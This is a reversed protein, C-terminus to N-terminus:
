PRQDGRSSAHASRAQRLAPRLFAAVGCPATLAVIAARVRGWSVKRVRPLARRSAPAARPSRYGWSSPVRLDSTVFFRRCRLLFEVLSSRGAAGLPWSTRRPPQLGLDDDDSDAGAPAVSALLSPLSTQQKTLAATSGASLGSSNESLSFAVM